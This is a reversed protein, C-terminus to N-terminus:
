GSKAGRLPLAGSLPALVADSSSAVYPLDRYEEAFDTGYVVVSLDGVSFGVFVSM